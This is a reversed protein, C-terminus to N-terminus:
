NVASHRVIDSLALMTCVLILMKTSVSYVLIIGPKNLTVDVNSAQWQYDIQWYNFHGWVRGENM